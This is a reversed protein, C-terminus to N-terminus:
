HRKRIAAAHTPFGEHDALALIAPAMHALAQATSSAIATRKLFTDVTIGSSVAAFGSTPLSAPAGIVFNGASFPTDQGLLIEAACDIHDLLVHPDTTAVQLHEPGFQNAVECAAALSEVLVCGGNTGLSARIADSRVEPVDALLDAIHADIQEAIARSTCVLVVTGDTGHEAEIMLDLAARWPDTTDDAIVMSESPGLLMMTALGHRQMEVQTRTVAPSGPGVVKVVKPISETGFGLAAIGSPGNVRFVDPLGLKNAVVLVAPDVEGSGGPVPPVVVAIKPVGAVVAPVGLQTLVSPYSAKGSPCFLGASRIPTVKEGVMLGPESEIQWDGLRGALTQNFTTLNAVAHDIAAKVDDGILSEAAAREDDSVRLRDPTISVKDFRALADCLAADGRTRVDDILTELSRGLEPSFIEDLGRHMLASREAATMEAWVM